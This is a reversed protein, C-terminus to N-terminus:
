YNVHTYYFLPLFPLFPLFSWFRLPARACNDLFFSITYAWLSFQCIHDVSSFIRGLSNYAILNWCHTYNRHHVKLTFFTKLHAPFFCLLLGHQRFWSRELGSKNRLWCLKLQQYRSCRWTTESENGRCSWTLHGSSSLSPWYRGSRPRWQTSISFSSFLTSFPFSLLISHRWCSM